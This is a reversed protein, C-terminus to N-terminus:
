FVNKIGSGHPNKHGFSKSHGVYIRVKSTNKKKELMFLLHALGSDLIM